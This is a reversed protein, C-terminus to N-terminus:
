PTAYAWETQLTRNFREAKGNTWPRGPQIFRRKLQLAVCVAAWGQHVRYTKANDTLLRRVLVGRRHFWGVARHLFAACTAGREDAHVEVHALRSYDDVAVHLYDWGIGRGRVHKRRGHVRWGGGDPVRGLKKM